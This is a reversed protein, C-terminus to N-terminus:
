LMDAKGSSATAQSGGRGSLLAPGLPTFAANLPSSAALAIPSSPASSSSSSSGMRTQQAACNGGEGGCAPAAEASRTTVEWGGDSGSFIKALSILVLLLQWGIYLVGSLQFFLM